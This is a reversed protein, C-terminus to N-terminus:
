RGERASRQSKATVKKGGLVWEGRLVEAGEVPDKTGAALVIAPREAAPPLARLRMTEKREVAQDRVDVGAIQAFRETERAMVMQIRNQAEPRVDGDGVIEVSTRVTMGLVTNETMLKM